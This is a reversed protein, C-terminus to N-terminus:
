VTNRSVSKSQSSVQVNRQVILMLSALVDYHAQM